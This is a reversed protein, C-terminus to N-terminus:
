NPRAIENLPITGFYTTRNATLRNMRVLEVIKWEQRCVKWDPEMKSMQHLPDGPKM